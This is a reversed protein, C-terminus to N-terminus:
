VIHPIAWTNVSPIGALSDERQNSEESVAVAVETLM